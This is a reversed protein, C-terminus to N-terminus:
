VPKLLITARSALWTAMYDWCVESRPHVRLIRDQPLVLSRLVEPAGTFGLRNQLLSCGSSDLQLSAQLMEERRQKHDLELVGDTLGLSQVDEM